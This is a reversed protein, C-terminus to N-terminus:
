GSNTHSALLPDQRFVNVVRGFRGDFCNLIGIEGSSDRAHGLGADDVSFGDGGGDEFFAAGLGGDKFCLADCRTEGDDEDAAVGGGGNIDARFRSGAGIEAEVGDFDFERFFGGLFLEEFNDSIKIGVGSHM